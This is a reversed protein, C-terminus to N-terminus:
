ARNGPNLALTSFEDMCLARPRGGRRQALATPRLRDIPPPAHVEHQAQVSLPGRGAAGRGPGQITLGHSHSLPGGHKSQALIRPGAHVADPRAELAAQLAAAVQPVHGVQTNAASKVYDDEAAAVACAVSWESVLVARVLRCLSWSIAKLARLQDFSCHIIVQRQLDESLSDWPAAFAPASMAQSAAKEAAVFTVHGM